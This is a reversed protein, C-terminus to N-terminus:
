PICNQGNGSTVRASVPSILSCNPLTSGGSATQGGANGSQQTAGISTTATVGAAPNSAARLAGELANLANMMPIHEPLVIGEATLNARLAAADLTKKDVVVVPANPKSLDVYTGSGAPVTVTQGGLTFSISGSVVSVVVNQGNMVVLFDTGRIGITASGARYAVAQPRAKGILGTVARMGGNILSLLVNSSEPRMPNYTYANIAFTSSAALAVVQGDLFRLVINSAPGTTISEGQNVTDGKRLARGVPTPPAPAGPAAAPPTAAATATGTLEFVTAVQALALGASMVFSFVALSFIRNLHKM